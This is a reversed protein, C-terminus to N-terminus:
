YNEMFFTNMISYKYILHLFLGKHIIFKSSFDVALRPDKHKFNVYTKVHNGQEIKEYCELM